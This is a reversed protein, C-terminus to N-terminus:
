LIPLFYEPQHFDPAKGPLPALTHFTQHPSNLIACLNFRIESDNFRTPFLNQWAKLRLSARWSTESQLCETKVDFDPPVDAHCRPATLISAWWAGNPSLNLELYHGSQSDSLFCEAVDYKWLEALFQNPQAQPHSLAPAKRTATLILEDENLQLSMEIPPTLPVQDWGQALSVTTAFPTM